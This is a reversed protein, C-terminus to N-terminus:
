ADRLESHWIQESARAWVDHQQKFVFYNEIVKRFQAAQSALEDYLPGMERRLAEVVNPPLVRLETGSAEFGKLALANNAEAWSHSILNCAAAANSVIAQLEAGLSDQRAKNIALETVSAPEHWGTM